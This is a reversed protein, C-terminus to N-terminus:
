GVENLHCASFHGPAIEIPAPRESHCRPLAHPCPPHFHCGAPPQFPSPIEGAVAAFRQKRAAIRPANALLAQAYPHNPKRFLEETAASEVVRGLYMIVVRDS